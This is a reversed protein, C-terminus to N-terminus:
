SGTRAANDESAPVGWLVLKFHNFPLRVTPTSIADLGYDSETRGSLELFVPFSILPATFGLLGAQEPNTEMNYLPVFIVRDEGLGQPQFLRDALGVPLERDLIRDPHVEARRTPQRHLRGALPRASRAASSANRKASKSTRHRTRGSNTTSRSTPTGAPRARREARSRLNDFGPEVHEYRGPGLRGRRRRARAAGRGGGDLM